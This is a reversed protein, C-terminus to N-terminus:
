VVSKFKAYKLLYEPAKVKSLKEIRDLYYRRFDEWRYYPALDSEFPLLVEKENHLLKVLVDGQKNRYFVMQVNVAMSTINFDQWHKHLNETDDVSLRPCCGELELM